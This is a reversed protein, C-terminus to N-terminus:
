VVLYLVDDAEPPSKAGSWLSQGQVGRPDAWLGQAHERARWLEDGLNITTDLFDKSYARTLMSNMLMFVGDHRAANIM